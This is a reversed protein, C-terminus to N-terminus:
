GVEELKKARALSPLFQDYRGLDPQTTPLEPPKTRQEAPLRVLAHVKEITPTTGAEKLLGLAIEVESESTSAALHLIRLYQQDCKKPLDQQLRDYALRFTLSPFLEERWRYDAFAGPKRVLSWIIHRYNILHRHKGILRPLSLVLEPGVFCELTEAWVRVRITTGILRSPVSYLNGQVAITSFRSVTVELLRCLALPAAPLPQLEPREQEFRGARKLNRQRILEAVFREYSQRDRFDRSGRVRLAQDLAEKFRFHVQEVYGNEHAIGTNNYTPQLQYHTMLAQYRETFDERGTRDLRRLAASLHDTRHEKPVGGIQWLAKELGEALAEFSESFCLNVAEVNSYTLVFHYFLHPFSEGALTIELDNMNTFDSQGRVGPRHVQEFIVEQEPGHLARWSAVHRRFTREQGPQYYGPRKQCLLEFLTSAQLAWDRSLQEAVWGWDEEFPNQRTRHTRPKRLQSPLKGAQEYKRGTKESIGARAAAVQQTQGKARHHMYLRVEGDKKM